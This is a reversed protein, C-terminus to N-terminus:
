MNQFQIYWLFNTITRKIKLFSDSFKAILKYVSIMLNQKSKSFTLKQETLGKRKKKMTEM